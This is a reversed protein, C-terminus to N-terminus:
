VAQPQEGGGQQPGAATVTSRSGLSDKRLIFNVVGAIADAGYIASAGDKLIEVRDIAALPISNVDVAAGDVRPEHGPPREAAGAHRRLRHRAPQHEGHRVGFVAGVALQDNLRRASNASVKAMLEPVSTPGTREIEERTIVQVPLASEIEIRPINSGTVEVRSWSRRGFAVRATRRGLDRRRRSRQWGRDQRM